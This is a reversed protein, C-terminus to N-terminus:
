RGSWAKTHRDHGAYRVLPRAAAIAREEKKEDSIQNYVFAESWGAVRGGLHEAIQATYLGERFLDICRM